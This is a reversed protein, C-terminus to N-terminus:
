QKINSRLFAMTVVSPTTINFLSGLNRGLGEWVVIM